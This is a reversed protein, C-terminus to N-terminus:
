IMAGWLWRAFCISIYLTNCPRLQCCFVNNISGCSWGVLDSQIQCFAMCYCIHQAYFTHSEKNHGGGEWPWLYVSVVSITKINLREAIVRCKTINRVRQWKPKKTSVFLRKRINRKSLFTDKMTYIHLDVYQEFNAIHLTCITCQM